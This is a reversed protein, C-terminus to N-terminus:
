KIVPPQKSISFHFTTGKGPKSVFWIKGGHLQVVKQCIALGVGTGSYEAPTHLRQFIRFIKDKYEQKIGIGNDSVTFEWYDDHETSSINIEPTKDKVFKLANDVLNLFLQYLHNPDGLVDHLNAVTIQANCARITSDLGRLAGQVVENMDTKVFPKHVSSIKSYNLLDWILQQMRKAGNVAFDIFEHAETDLKGKYRSELLQLYSAITRLPGQLDHSAVYAFRELEENSRQLQTARNQLQLQVEKLDSIDFVMVMGYIVEGAENSIPLHYIRLSRNNYTQEVDSSEGALIKRYIKEVRPRDEMRISETVTRGEIENKAKSVVGVLPGEALIYKLDKDFIFMAAKPLNRAIERYLHETAKVGERAEKVATIDTGVGLINKENGTISAIPKKVVQLWLKEGSELQTIHQEPFHIERNSQLVEQDQKEFLGLDHETFKTETDYHGEMESPQMNYFRGVSENALLFKGQADKVFIMNPTSDIILRLFDKQRELENSIKEKEDIEKQLRANLAQLERMREEVKKELDANMKQLLEQHGIRESIDRLHILMAKKDYYDIQAASVEVPIIRGSKSLRVSEYKKSTGAVVQQWRSRVAEHISAPTTDYITKGTLEKREMEHLCAAAENVDLIVGETDMIYIADPSNMYINRFRRESQTVSIEALKREKVEQNLMQNSESLQRTRAIVKSELEEKASLLEEELRRQKGVETSVVISGMFEGADDIVAKGSIRMWVPEGNKKKMQIDYSDAIGRKRLEMKAKALRKNEENYLLGMVDTGTLEEAQYGLMKTFRQNVYVLVGGSTVCYIGESTWEVLDRFRIDIRAGSHGTLTVYQDNFLDIM